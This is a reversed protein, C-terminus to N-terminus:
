SGNRRRHVWECALGALVAGVSAGVFDAIWDAVDATRGAIPIQTLEDIVGYVAAILVALLAWKWRWGHWLALGGTLLAALLAYSSFHFIKDLPLTTEALRRLPLHTAAFALPWYLM